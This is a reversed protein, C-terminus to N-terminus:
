KDGIVDDMCSIEPFYESMLDGCHQDVKEELFNKDIRTLLDYKKKTKRLHSRELDLTSDPINLFEAIQKISRNLEKTRVMLMNEKPVASLVQCNYKNWYSLYGDLPYLRKDSALVAECETFESFESGFIVDAYPRWLRNKQSPWNSGVQLNLWSDLWTYCDRILFIFKAEPVAKVLHHILYGTPHSSEVELWMRRDRKKFFEVLESEVFENKSLSITKQMVLEYEPEHASRYHRAFL